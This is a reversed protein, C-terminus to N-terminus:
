LGEGKAPFIQLHPISKESGIWSRVDNNDIVKYGKEKLFSLDMLPAIITYRELHYKNVFDIIERDSISSCLIVIKKDEIKYCNTDIKTTRYDPISAFVTYLLYPKFAENTFIIENEGSNVIREAILHLNDSLKKEANHSEFFNIIKLDLLSHFPYFFLNGAILTVSFILLYRPMKEHLFLSSIILFPLVSLVNHHPTNCNIPLWFLTPLAAWLIIFCLFNYKKKMFYYVFVFSSTFFSLVGITDIIPEIQLRFLLAYNKHIFHNYPPMFSSKFWQLFGQISTTSGLYHGKYQFGIIWGRLIWFFILSLLIIGITVLYIRKDKIKRIYLIGLYAGCGLIHNSKFLFTLILSIVSLLLIFKDREDLWKLFLYLSTIFFFLSLLVPFGYLSYLYVSPTFIFLLTTYFAILTNNFLRNVLLYSPITILIAFVLNTYNMVYPLLSYDYNFFRMIFEIYVVYGPITDIFYLNTFYGGRKHNILDIISVGMSAADTEGFGKFLFPVKFIISLIILLSLHTIVLHRKDTKISLNQM